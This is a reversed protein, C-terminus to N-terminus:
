PSFGARHLSLVTTALGVAAFALLAGTLALRRPTWRQVPIRPRPPALASFDKALSREDRKVLNRLQTPVTVGRTAAFAEAIDDPTFPRLAARYVKNLDRVDGHTEIRAISDPPPLSCV